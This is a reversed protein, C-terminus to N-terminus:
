KLRQWTLSRAPDLGLVLREGDLRVSRTYDTGVEAPRMSGHIRHTVTAQRENVGYRGFYALYGDQPNAPRPTFSPDRMIQVSMNGARDYILLGRPNRGMSHTIQGNAHREEVSLLSWTGVLAAAKIAAPQNAPGAWPLVTLTALSLISVVRRRGASM